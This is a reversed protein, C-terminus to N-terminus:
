STEVGPLRVGHEDALISLVTAAIEVPDFVGTLDIWRVGEEKRFWTYQRKAYRRSNRKILRIAEQRSIEGRIYSSFEKYGIAQLPTQDPSAGLLTRVEEELGQEIMRDVRADIARYLEGRERTFGVKIFNYPLPSTLRRRLDSIRDEGKVCVEIARIIRRTDNRDIGTAAEPDRQLLEAYLSGPEAEERLSLRDRLPWDASPGSFLGRTLAKIYLGTGGVILPMKGEGLIRRIIPAAHALYQGASFPESPNVIDIMHHRAMAREGHSPKATGIDMMRYIQMSDASIIETRLRRAVLISAGTKGVGTPGLLVLVRNM